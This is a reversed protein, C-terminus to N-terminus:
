PLRLSALSSPYQSGGVQVLIHQRGDHLYTMMGYQGSAPLSVSSLREGTSKDLAHLLPRGGLGEASILLTETVMNVPHNMQGTNPLDVGQLAPHNLIHDPTDGNPIVWLHEGTKMDLAVTKGYPPKFIPLGGPGNCGASPGAVWDMTTTGTIFPDDPDEVDSGPILLPCRCGRASAIYVIGSHPDAVSQGFINGAGFPCNITARKGLDNDVHIFPTYPERGWDFDELIELVQNRLEPTFDILMDEPLGVMEFPPPKTPFPQVPSAQEGPVHSRPVPREEIPWIPEGTERNFAFTFGAKGNQVVAPIDEGDVTVDLLIPAMSLDYNWLDRRITQFHWVREGTQVDLAILSNGYLNDGPRFGAYYDNTPGNTPIFVLGREPDASMPAWSSIDGTWRWADNEWTEHGHEGPRPIVHFKWLQEGTRASYGLIDGPINEMRVQNYGQEGSNGVVIVDNVVIPPSSTTINGLQAPAGFEPDYPGDYSEWPGWGRLIDPLMDVVGSDSFGPLAVPAGWGELPRGTKADLAHLFFAPTTLFIVGQGDIESYALGKGYGRRTSREWRTTNPERYTWLTEGTGPDIAIVTRREGAVTYLIGDAYIPTSRSQNMPSPGYNDGRWVWAVELNEFNDATVEDLPSYRTHSVDGGHFRWEGGQTGEQGQARGDGPLLTAVAILVLLRAFQNRRPRRSRDNRTTTPFTPNVQQVAPKKMTAEVEFNSPAGNRRAM